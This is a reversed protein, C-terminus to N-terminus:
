RTIYYVTGLLDQAAVEINGNANNLATEIDMSSASPVLDALATKQQSYRFHILNLFYICFEFKEKQGNHPGTLTPICTYM